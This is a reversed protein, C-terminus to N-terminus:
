RGKRVQKNGQKTGKLVAKNMARSSIGVSTGKKVIGSVDKQSFSGDKVAGKAIVKAAAKIVKKGATNAM